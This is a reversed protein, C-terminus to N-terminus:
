LKRGTKRERKQRAAEIRAQGRADPTYFVKLYDAPPEGCCVRRTDAHVFGGDPGLRPVNFAM